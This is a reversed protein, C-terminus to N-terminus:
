LIGDYLYIIDEKDLWRNNLVKTAYENKSICIDNCYFNTTCMIFYIFYIFLGDKGSQLQPLPVTPTLPAGEKGKSDGTHEIKLRWGECIRKEKNFAHMHKQPSQTSRGQAM